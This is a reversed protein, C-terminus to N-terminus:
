NTISIKVQKLFIMKLDKVLLLLSEIIKENHVYYELHVTIQCKKFIDNKLNNKMEKWICTASWFIIQVIIIM